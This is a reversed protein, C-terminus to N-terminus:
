KEFKEPSVVEQLIDEELLRYTIPPFRSIKRKADKETTTFDRM